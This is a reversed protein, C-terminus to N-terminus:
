VHNSINSIDLIEHIHMEGVPEKGVQTRTTATTTATTSTSTTTTIITTTTTPHCLNTFFRQAIQVNMIEMFNLLLLRTPLRPARM